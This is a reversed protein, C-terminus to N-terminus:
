FNSMMRQKTWVLQLAYSINSWLSISNPHQQCQCSCPIWAVPEGTGGPPSWLTGLGFSIHATEGSPESDVGADGGLQTHGSFRWLLTGLCRFQIKWCFMFANITQVSSLYVKFESNFALLGWVVWGDVGKNKKWKSLVLPTSRWCRWVGGENKDSTCTWNSLLHCTFM